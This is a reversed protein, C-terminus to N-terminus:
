LGSPRTEGAAELKALLRAVLRDLEAHDDADMKPGPERAAPCSLVGRRRLTEKRLALGFTTRSDSCLTSSM